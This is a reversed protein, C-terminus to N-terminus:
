LASASATTPRRRMRQRSMEVSAVPRPASASDAGPAPAPARPDVAAGARSATRCVAAAPDRGVTRPPRSRRAHEAPRNGASAELRRPLAAPRSRRRGRRAGVTAAPGQRQPVQRPLQEGRIRCAGAGNRTGAVGSSERRQARPVPVPASPAPPDAIASERRNRQPADRRLRTAPGDLASVSRSPHRRRHRRPAGPRQGPPRALGIADSSSSSASGPVQITRASSTCSFTSSGIRAAAVLRGPGAPPGPLGPPPAPPAAPPAGPGFGPGTESIRAPPPDPRRAAMPPGPCPSLPRKRDRTPSAARLTGDSHRRPAPVCPRRSLHAM